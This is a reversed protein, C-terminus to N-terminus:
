TRWPEVTVTRTQWIAKESGGDDAGVDSVNGRIESSNNVFHGQKNMALASSMEVDTDRTSDMRGYKNRSGM